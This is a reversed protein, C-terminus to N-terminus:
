ENYWDHKAQGVSNVIAGLVVVVVGIIVFIGGSSMFPTPGAQGGAM